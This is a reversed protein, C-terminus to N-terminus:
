VQGSEESTQPRSPPEGLRVSALYRHLRLYSSCTCLYRSVLDGIAGFITTTEFPACQHFLKDHGNGSKKSKWRSPPPIKTLKGKEGIPISARVVGKPYAYVPVPFEPLTLGKKAGFFIIRARSQPVGYHIAQLLKYRVQYGLSILTRLIFKLMGFHIVKSKNSTAHKDQLKYDLLGTVNELLFYKPQYYEVYSLM